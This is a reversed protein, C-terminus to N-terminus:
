MGFVLIRFNRGPGSGSPSPDNNPVFIKHTKADVALRAAGSETPVTERVSYKDPSDQKIVTVSGEGNASFALGADPDYAAEDPNGGIPVTAVKHGDNTDLIVMMREPRPGPPNLMRRFDPRCGVFLRGHEKDIAMTENHPATCGVPWQDVAALTRADIRQVLNRTILNVFVHGKDDAAAFAPRAGLEITGVVKGSMADFATANNGDENFAFVRRTAADYVIANPDDGTLKVEGIKQLTKLDFITSSGARGNATFARNLDAAFAVHHVGQYPTTRGAIGIGYSPDFQPAPVKGVVAHTDADLVVLEEGHSFYVRRNVPDANAYDFIGEGPTVPVTQLLHYGQAAAVESSLAAAVAALFRLTKM